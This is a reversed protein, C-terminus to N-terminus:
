GAAGSAAPDAARTQGGADSSQEQVGVVVRDGEKVAGPALPRIETFGDGSTGLTVEVRRRQGGHYVTVVTKGDAGASVASVPVVLVKGQSSAAQVTLRVDQAALGADLARDPRVLVAYSGAGATQSQDGQAGDGGAANPTDSVSAVTGNATVGDVESLIQVKQGPHVLGKQFPALSGKVVLAGASVTMLKGSVTAGVSVSVSDVRAPFGRLFVVESAPLQPGAAARAAALDSRATDLDEAAREVQKRAQDVTLTSATAGQSAPQRAAALADKADQWTRRAQTVATQASTVQQAGDPEAPVPDYGLGAYFAALAAQTGAGFVGAADGGTGHGLSRLAEQVQAVDQGHSGPKLDRYAPLKGALVFVPRGSVEVLVQGSRVSQGARVPLKTVVSRATDTGGSTPPTVDVSQGATVTGRIVVSDTLVRREVTATLVDPAPAGSDAAAQAPSKIVSSAAVGAGTLLVAGAAVGALVRRRGALRLRREDGVADVADVADM